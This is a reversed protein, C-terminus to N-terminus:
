KNEKCYDNSCIGGFYKVCVDQLNQIEYLLITNIRRNNVKFEQRTQNKNEIFKETFCIKLRQLSLLM